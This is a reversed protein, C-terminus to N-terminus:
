TCRRGATRLPVTLRVAHICPCHATRQEHLPATGMRPVTRQPPQVLKLSQSSRLVVPKPNMVEEVIVEAFTAM